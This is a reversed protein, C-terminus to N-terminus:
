IVFWTQLHTFLSLVKAHFDTQSHFNYKMKVSGHDDTKRPMQGQTGQSGDDGVAFLQDM